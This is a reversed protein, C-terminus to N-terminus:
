SRTIPHREVTNEVYAKDASVFDWYDEIPIHAAAFRRCSERGQRAITVSNSRRVQIKQSGDGCNPLLQPLSKLFVRVPDAKVL